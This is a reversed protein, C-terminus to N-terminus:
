SQAAKLAALRAQAAEVAAEAAAIAKENRALETRKAAEAKKAEREAERAVQTIEARKAKIVTGLSTVTERAADQEKLLDALEAELAATGGNTARPASARRPRKERKWDLSDVLSKPIKSHTGREHSIVAGGDELLKVNEPQLVWARSRNTYALLEATTFYTEDTDTNEVVSLHSKTDTMTEAKRM